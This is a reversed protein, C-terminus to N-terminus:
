CSQIVDNVEKSKNGQTVAFVLTSTQVDEQPNLGLEERTRVTVIMTARYEGPPAKSAYIISGSVNLLDVIHDPNFTSFSLEDVRRGNPFSFYSTFQDRANLQLAVSSPTQYYSNNLYLSFNLVSSRLQADSPTSAYYVSANM